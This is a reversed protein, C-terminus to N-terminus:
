RRRLSRGSARKGRRVGLSPTPPQFGNLRARANSVGGESLSTTGREGAAQCLSWIRHSRYWFGDIRPLSYTTSAM